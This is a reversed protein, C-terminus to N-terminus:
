PLAIIAEHELSAVIQDEVTIHIDLVAREGHGEFRDIVRSRVVVVSGVPVMGHHRIISRTHIWAGRALQNHMVDNGLAPWVAPHVVGLRTTLDLDDGARMAYDAGLTGDLCVEINDLDDGPRMTPAPGMTPECRLVARPQEPRGSRVEVTVSGADDADSPVLDLVDGDLVPRRFRVEGGGHALWQEGWGALPVHCLYAYTTVGAVLAGNFGAARGGEDTHIPNRAHEPLNTAVVQWPTLPGFTM